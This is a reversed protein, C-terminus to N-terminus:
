LSAYVADVLSAARPDIRIVPSCQNMVYGFGIRAEPDALGLSGGMGPHGFARENPGMAAGPLPMMFGLGFRTMVKLVEDVGRAHETRAAAISEPSLVQIGDLMGGGALAGYFRAVARATAHGNSSPIEAQRWQSTNAVDAIQHVPPNTFAKATVSDPERVMIRGLQPETDPPPPPVRSIFAVRAHESEALGIHFDLGLPGAIEERFCTGLSRGTIRRVLEGLLWGFTRAHYGHKEGPSWWPAQEAVAGAMTQWDFIAEAPLPRTIAPVGARHSLLMRVTIAEKGNQAFEPWHRAVPDDLDLLGRDVLQHVCTATVGKTTSYVNVLTDRQWPRTRELDAHGGWLDVVAHGDLTVAVAAGVERGANFHEAFVERVRRFKADCEGHITTADTM